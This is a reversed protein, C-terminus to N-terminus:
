EKNKLKKIEANLRECGKELAICDSLPCSLCVNREAKLNRNVRIKRRRTKM